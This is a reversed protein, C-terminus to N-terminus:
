IIKCHQIYHIYIGQEYPFNQLNESIFLLYIFLIFLYIIYEEINMRVKDTNMNKLEVNACSDTDLITSFPPVPCYLAMISVSEDNGVCVIKRGCSKFAKSLFFL